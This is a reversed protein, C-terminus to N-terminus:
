GWQARNGWSYCPLLVQRLLDNHSNAVTYTFFSGCLWKQFLFHIFIINIFVIKRPEECIRSIWHFELCQLTHKRFIERCVRNKDGGGTVQHLSEANGVQTLVFKWSLLKIFTTRGHLENGVMHNVHNRQSIQKIVYTKCLFQSQSGTTKM